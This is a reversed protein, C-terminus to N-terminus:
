YAMRYTAVKKLRCIREIEEDICGDHPPALLSPLTPDTHAYDYRLIDIPTVTNNIYASACYTEASTADRATGDM